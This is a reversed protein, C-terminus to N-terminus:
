SGITVFPDRLAEATGIFRRFPKLASGGLLDSFHNPAGHHSLM